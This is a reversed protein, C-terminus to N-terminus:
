KRGKRGKMKKVKDERMNASSLQRILMHGSGCVTLLLVVLSVGVWGPAGDQWRYKEVNVMDQFFYSFYMFDPTYTFLWKTNMVILNWRPHFNMMRRSVWSDDSTEYYEDVYIQTVQYTMSMGILQFLASIICVVIFIKLFPTRKRPVLLKGVFTGMVIVMFAAIPIM